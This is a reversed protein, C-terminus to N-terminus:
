KVIIRATGTMDEPKDDDGGFTFGLCISGALDGVEVEGWTWDQWSHGEVNQMMDMEAKLLEILADKYRKTLEVKRDGDWLAHTHQKSM